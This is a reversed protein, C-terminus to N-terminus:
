ARVGAIRQAIYDRMAADFAQELKRAVPGMVETYKRGAIESIGLLSRNTSTIFVEDAAYLDEPTLTQETLSVGNLAAIELLM